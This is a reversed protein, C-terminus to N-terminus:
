TKHRCRRRAATLSTHRRLPGPRSRRHPAAIKATAPCERIKQQRKTALDSLVESRMVVLPEKQHGCTSPLTLAATGRIKKHFCLIAAATTARRNRANPFKLKQLAPRSCQRSNRIPRQVCASQRWRQRACLPYLFPIHVDVDAGVRRCLTAIILTHLRGALLDDVDNVGEPQLCTTAAPKLKSSLPLMCTSRM